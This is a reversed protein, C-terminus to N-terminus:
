QFYEIERRESYIHEEPESAGNEVRETTRLGKRETWNGQKDFGVYEYVTTEKLAFDFSSAELLTGALRQEKDYEMRETVCIEEYWTSNSGALSGNDNYSYVSSVKYAGNDKNKVSYTSIRGNGDREIEVAVDEDEWVEDYRHSIAMGDSNFALSFVLEDVGYNNFYWKVSKVNGKLEYLERDPYTEAKGSEKKATGICGAMVLCCLVALAKFLTAKKM